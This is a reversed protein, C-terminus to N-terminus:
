DGRKWFIWLLLPAPKFGARTKKGYYFEILKIPESLIKLVM